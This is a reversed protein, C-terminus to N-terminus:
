ENTEEEVTIGAAELCVNVLATVETGTMPTYQSNGTFMATDEPAYESAVIAQLTENEIPVALEAESDETLEM